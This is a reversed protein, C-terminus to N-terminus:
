FEVGIALSLDPYGVTLDEDQFVWGDAPNTFVPEDAENHQYHIAPGAAVEVFWRDYSRDQRWRWGITLALNHTGPVHKRRYTCRKWSYHTSLFFGDGRGYFWRAGAAGHGSDLEFCEGFGYGLFAAWHGHRLEAHLGAFDYARGVGGAVALNLLDEGMAPPAAALFATLIAARM